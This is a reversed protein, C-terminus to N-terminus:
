IGGLYGPEEMIMADGENLFTKGLLDLGQQSGSTILINSIPIELNFRQKYRGATFERLFVSGESSGYQFSSSGSREFIRNAAEKLEDM